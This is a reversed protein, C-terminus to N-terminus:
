GTKQRKAAPSASRGSSRKRMPSPSKKKEPKGGLKKYLDDLKKTLSAVEFKTVYAYCPARISKGERAKHEKALKATIRSHNKLFKEEMISRFEKFKPPLNTLVFNVAVNPVEYSVCLNYDKDCQSNEKNEYAPECTIPHNHLLSQIQILM